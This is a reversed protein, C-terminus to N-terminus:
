MAVNNDGEEDDNYDTDWDTITTVTFKIEEQENAPDINEANISTKIDYANGAVPVFNAYATHDYTTVKTGNILLDVKFTVKYGDKDEAALKTAEGPILFRENYSEYVANQGFAVDASAEVDTTAENDSANGFNIVIAGDQDTWATSSVGLTATATEYANRIKVDYVKITASNAPYANEFSFKVKSLIHRFTFAVKDNQGTAKAQYQVNQAYLVDNTGNLSEETGANSFPLVTTGVYNEGDKAVSFVGDQGNASPAIAAFSYKAGTIWYQKNTYTWDGNLATGSVQVNDFLSANEVFGYVAFDHFLNTNTYSKDDVSRTSNNVFANDFGIAEPAAERVIEDNSCAVMAVTALIALLTKKM